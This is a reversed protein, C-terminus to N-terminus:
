TKSEIYKLVSDRDYLLHKDSIRKFTIGGDDRYKKFTTKSAIRLLQMAEKESIWPSEKIRQEQKIQIVVENVLAKFAKSELCIVNLSTEFNSM